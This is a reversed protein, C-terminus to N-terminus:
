SGAARPRHAIKTAGNPESARERKPPPLFIGAEKRFRAPPGGRAFFFQGLLVSLLKPAASTTTSCRFADNQPIRHQRM